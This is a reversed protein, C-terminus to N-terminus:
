SVVAGELEALEGCYEAAAEQAWRLREHGTEPLEAGNVSLALRYRGPSGFPKTVIRARVKTGGAEAEATWRCGSGDNVVLRKDCRTWELKVAEGWTRQAGPPVRSLFPDDCRASGIPACRGTVTDGQRRIDARNLDAALSPIASVRVGAKRREFSRERPRRNRAECRKGSCTRCYRPVGGRCGRRYGEVAKGCDRCRVTEPLSALKRAQAREHRLRDRELKRIRRCEPCRSPAPGPRRLRKFRQGCAGCALEQVSGSTPKGSAM